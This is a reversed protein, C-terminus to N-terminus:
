LCPSVSFCMQRGLNCENLTQASHHACVACPKDMYGTGQHGFDQTVTNTALILDPTRLTQAALFAALVPLFQNTFLWLRMSNPHRM